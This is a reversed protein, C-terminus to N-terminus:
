HDKVFCGALSLLLGLAAGCVAIINNTACAIGFLSICVGSIGLKIGKM